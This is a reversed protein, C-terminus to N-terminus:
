PYALSTESTVINSDAFLMGCGESLTPHSFMMDRLLPYEVGQHIALQFLALLEDASPSLLTVGLIKKTKADIVAKFVGRTEALTKARPIDAVNFKAIQIDYGKKLAQTESLGVRGLEPDIFVVYPILRDKASKKAQPSEINHRVIRFDDESLHTFQPGGKVDGLVWVGPAATELFEDTEIHGKPTMKISTAQLNLDATNPNRGVAVLLADGSVEFHNQDKQLALVIKGDSKKISKTKCGTRIDLGEQTLIEYVNKAIDRDELPLFETHEEILTVKSGFRSFMQGYELGIYGCGLVLLKKPLSNLELMSESTLFDIGELGPIRPIAPHSGVDIVIQNAELIRKKGAAKPDTLTVELQKNSIFRGKGLVIEVGSDQLLKLTGARMRAVVRNKLEMAAAFDMELKSTRLGFQEGHAAEHMVHACNILTKTPICAVNICNGGIMAPNQEVLAVKKGQKAFTASLFKGGTGCGLVILDFRDM